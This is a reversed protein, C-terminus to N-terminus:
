VAWLHHQLRTCLEGRPLLWWRRVLCLTNPLCAVHGLRQAAAWQLTLAMSGGTFLAHTLAKSTPSGSLSGATLKSALACDVAQWCGWRYEPGLALAVRNASGSAPSWAAHTCSQGQLARGAPVAEGAARCCSTSGARQKHAGGRPMGTVSGLAGAGSEFDDAAWGLQGGAPERRGLLFVRCHQGAAEAAAWRCATNTDLKPVVAFLHVHM